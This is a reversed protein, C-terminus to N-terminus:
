DKGVTDRVNVRTSDKNPKTDRIMDKARPDVATLKIPEPSNKLMPIICLYKVQQISRDQNNLNVITNFAWVPQLINGNGDYYSRQTGKIEFAANAGFESAIQRKAMEEAEKVTIMEEPKIEKKDAVRLERWRRTVGLVQGKDGIQIVIKSGAGIVPLSDIIRGYTLTRVKDIIPGAQKGNVISQSRIGGSHVLRIEADNKPSIANTRLFERAIKVAEEESPLKLADNDLYAKTIKSFEFNGNNLDQEFTINLDEDAVYYAVNEDGSVTLEHPNPIGMYQTIMKKSDATTLPNTKEFTYVYVGGSQKVTSKCKCASISLIITVLLLNKITLRM